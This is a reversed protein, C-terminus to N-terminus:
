CVGSTRLAWEWSGCLACCGRALLPKKGSCDTASESRSTEPLVGADAYFRLTRVALGSRKALEGITMDSVILGGGLPFDLAVLM